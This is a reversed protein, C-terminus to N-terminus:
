GGSATGREKRGEDSAFLLLVQLYRLCYLRENQQMCYDGVPRFLKVIKM